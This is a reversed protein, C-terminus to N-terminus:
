KIVIYAKDFIGIRRYRVVFINHVYDFAVLIYPKEYAHSSSNNRLKERSRARYAFAFVYKDSISGVKVAHRIRKTFDLRKFVAFNLRRMYQVYVLITRLTFFTVSRQYAYNQPVGHFQKFLFIDVTKRSPKVFM